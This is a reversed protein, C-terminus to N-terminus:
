HNNEKDQEAFVRNIANIYALISAEIVDTALGRGTYLNSEKKIRITVEGLADEGETVAKIDYSALPWEGGVIRAIANYAADIPGDGTSSEAVKKGDDTKITIAAMAQIKNGSLVQFSDLKFHEPVEAIKHSLLAELDDDTIIKKRDALEKFREFADDYEDKQLDFGLIQLRSIFAHRGSLKGLVFARDSKGVSEPTMIEYTLPNRLVGHQHIGSEHTFVNAGVISKYESVPIGTLKSV